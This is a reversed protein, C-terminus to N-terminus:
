RGNSLHLHQNTNVCERKKRLGMNGEKEMMRERHQTVTHIRPTATNKTPCIFPLSGLMWKRGGDSAWWGGGAFPNQGSLVNWIFRRRLHLVPGPWTM